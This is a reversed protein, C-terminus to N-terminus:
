LNELEQKYEEITILEFELKILSDKLSTQFTATGLPLAQGARIVPEIVLTRQTSYGRVIYIDGSNKNKLYQGMKFEM